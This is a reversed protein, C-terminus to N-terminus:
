LDACRREVGDGDGCVAVEKQLFKGVQKVYHSKLVIVFSENEGM